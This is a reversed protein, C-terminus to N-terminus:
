CNESIFVGCCAMMLMRSPMMLWIPWSLGLLCLHSSLLRLIPPTNLFIAVMPVLTAAPTTPTSPSTTSSRKLGSARSDSM